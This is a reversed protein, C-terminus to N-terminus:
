ESERQERAFDLDGRIEENHLKADYSEEIRDESFGSEEVKQQSSCFITPVISVIADFSTQAIYLGDQYLYITHGDSIGDDSGRSDYQYTDTFVYTNETIVVVPLSIGHAPNCKKNSEVARKWMKEFEERTTM